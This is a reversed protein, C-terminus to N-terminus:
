RGVMVSLVFQGDVLLTLVADLNRPIAHYGMILKLDAGLVGPKNDVETRAM